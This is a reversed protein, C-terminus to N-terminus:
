IAEGKEYWKATIFTLILFLILAIIIGPLIVSSSLLEPKFTQSEKVAPMGNPLLKLIPCMLRAPIAYPILYWIKEVAGLIGLVSYAVLNILITPFMGIKSGLFLCLPIQWLFTIVLVISGAVENLIYIRGASGLGLINGTFINGFLHIASAAAILVACVFIKSIWVRKLDVPLSLVGMNKMKKDSNAVFSCELSIMGPLIIIYWWNYSNTQFYHPQLFISLLMTFIPALFVLKRTFTHRSKLTESKFYSNMSNVKGEINEQLKELYNKM